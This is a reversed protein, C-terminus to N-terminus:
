FLLKLALQVQRPPTSQGTITGFQAVGFTAIPQAWNPHNLANFFEGRFQLSLRERIAFNKFLSTDMTWLGPGPVTNVGLNGVAFPAPAAFAAVNLYQAPSRQAEPLRPDQGVVANARTARGNNATSSALLVTFPFGTQAQVIGNWQWGGLVTRAVASGFCGDKTQCFPIQYLFNVVLRHRVDFGTLARESVNLFDQALEGQFGQRRYSNGDSIAKAWTYATLFSLGNTLKYQLKSHFGHYNASVRNVQNEITGALVTRGVVPAPLLNGLGSVDPTILNQHPRRADIAGPAPPVDNYANRTDLKHSVSGVYAVEAAMRTGIQRQVSSNWQISYPTRLNEDIGVFVNRLGNGGIQPAITFGIQPIEPIFTNSDQIDSVVFPINISTRGYHEGDQAGYFMGGGLRVVWKGANDPRYALGFRPAWNNYDSSTLGRPTGNRGALVVPVDVRGYDEPRLATLTRLGKFSVNSLRDYKDYFPSTFEYRVGLNLTLRGNLKWDDQLYGAASHQRLYANATGVTRRQQVPLGLLMSALGDGTTDGAQTGAYRNTFNPTFRFDGRPTFIQIINFEFRRIEGGVRVNHRGLNWSLNNAIHYTNNRLRMPLFFNDDGLAAYGPITFSPIGWVQPGGFQVGSIGLEGVIDRKFANESLRELRLRAFGVRLENVLNSHITHTYGVAAHMARVASDTGAGPLATPVFGTENSLSYRGFLMGRNGVRQDMRLTGQNNRQRQNRTDLLNNIRGPLNPQPVLSGLVNTAIPSLRQAPIRNNPFPERTLRRGAPDSADARLTLPDYIPAFGAFDGLRPATLPVTSVRSQGQVRRIGEYNLFFFTSDKKVPGGLAFGFQNFGFQPLKNPNNFPRADLADNRLFHYVTGRPENSGSKTVINIQGSSSRGFEASYNSTEVKFEQIAEVSPSFIYANVDGDTNTIGDLLFNNNQARGGSVSISSDQGPRQFLSNQGNQPGGNGTTVGPVLLALELFQRGNLPLELIRKSDIVQGLTATESNLLPVVDKVEVAQEVVGVEMDLDLRATQQVTLTLKQIMRTRFGAATATLSYDGAALFPFRYDGESNADVERLAQTGLNVVKVHANALGAGSSDRVTGTLTASSTQAQLPPLSLLVLLYCVMIASSTVMCGNCHRTM